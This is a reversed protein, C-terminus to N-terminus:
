WKLNQISKRTKSARFKEPEKSKVFFLGQIYALNLIWTKVLTKEKCNRVGDSSLNLRVILTMTVKVEM